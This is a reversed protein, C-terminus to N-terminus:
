TLLHTLLPPTGKSNGNQDRLITCEEINGYPRFLQRVDDEQQQKNLMGVFLKRDDAAVLCLVFSREYRFAVTVDRSSGSSRLASINKIEFDRFCM